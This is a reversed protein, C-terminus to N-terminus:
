PRRLPVTSSPAEARPQVAPRVPAPVTEGAMRGGALRTAQPLWGAILRLHDAPVDWDPACAIIREIYGPKPVGGEAGTGVYVLARKAGGPTVIPQTVKVYLGRGVDEFRDLARLDGLTLEWLGGHVCARTDRVV